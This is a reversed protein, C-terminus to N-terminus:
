GEAKIDDLSYDVEDPDNWFDFSGARLALESWSPAEAQVRRRRVFAVFDFVEELIEEPLSDIEKILREKVSM